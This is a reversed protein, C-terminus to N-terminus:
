FQKELFSAVRQGTGSGCGQEFCPFCFVQFCHCTVGTRSGYPYMHVEPQWSGIAMATVVAATSGKCQCLSQCTVPLFLFAKFEKLAAKSKSSHNPQRALSDSRPGRFYEVIRVVLSLNREFHTKFQMSARVGHRVTSGQQRSVLAQQGGGHRAPRGPCQSRTVLRLILLRSQRPMPQWCVATFSLSADSDSEGASGLEPKGLGPSEVGPRRIM